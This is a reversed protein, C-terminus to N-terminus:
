QQSLQTDAIWNDVRKELLPLPMAGAGLITDHFSRIDFQEGLQQKAKTRLELIKLMGIKYSTAQGPWILYRQVESRVAGEPVASNELFYQVAQEESWNKTHLGTDVVLRIARWIEATLRGFEKYPDKFQGMEASLQEAYLAWGESYVSFSAQTRFLPLDTLEQAIAIQMHHGPNGEHYATTEMDTSSYANMDSLHAYYIGPRSGDPTGPYYHQSEGDRERFAEVRKVELKGKPLLGFYQPLKRDIEALFGRTDDLYAQRGSDANPYYFQKDNRIFEFFEALSGDFQVRDKLAEMERKIRAVESQGLKHVADATLPLTTYKALQVDYYAKGSPLSSAGQAKVSAKKMDTQLWAILRQYAPLFQKQLTKQTSKTLAKAQANTIKQAKLLAAIQSQAGSWLPVDEGQTFPTGTILNQAQEIAGKYAFRPPRVGEAANLKARELLQDIARSIGGIRTIYAEMDSIDDVKHFNLVFNPLTSQAGDMQEFIYANRKFAQEAKDQQYQFLWLDYSAKGEDTLTDYEFLQKMQAVSNEKWALQRAEAAESMDDIQDYHEKRGLYSLTIPSFQLEEEYRQDLWKRLRETAAVPNATNETTAALNPPPTASNTASKSAQAYLNGSVVSLLMLSLLAIRM